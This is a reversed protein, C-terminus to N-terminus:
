YKDGLLEKLKVLSAEAEQDSEFCFDFEEAVFEIYAELEGTPTM